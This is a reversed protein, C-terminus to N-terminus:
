SITNLKCLTQNRSNVILDLGIGFRQPKQFSLSSKFFKPAAFNLADIRLIGKSGRSFSELSSCWTDGV